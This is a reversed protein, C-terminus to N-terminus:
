VLRKKAKILISSVSFLPVTLPRQLPQAPTNLDTKHPLMAVVKKVAELLQDESPDNGAQALAEVALMDELDLPSKKRGRKAGPAVSHPLAKRRDGVPTLLVQAIDTCRKAMMQALPVPVAQGQTLYSALMQYLKGWAKSDGQEALALYDLAVRPLVTQPAESPKTPALNEGGEEVIPYPKLGPKVAKPTTKKNM